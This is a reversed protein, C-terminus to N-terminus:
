KKDKKTKKAADIVAKAAAVDDGADDGFLDLDDDAAEAKAAPAEKAPTAKAAKADDAQKLAKGCPQINGAAKVVEPIARFRDFWDGANKMGKRFGADLVLQFAPTLVSGVVVDALTVSNGVLFQKGNLHGNLVKVSDKLNKILENFRANDLKYSGYVAGSIQEISPQLYEAWTVWQNVQAEQFPSSGLLGSTTNMRALHSAIASTGSIIDGNATELYPFQFTPHRAALDKNQRAQAVTTEVVTLNNNALYGVVQAFFSTKDLVHLKVVERNVQQVGESEGGRGQDNPKMAPFLMVEKINNTDTLLMCIRDIGLGWGGTPPLGYELANVFSMDVHQAELDGAEKAKAQGQFAELQVKPDNLETYANIIEHYNAFLEFRESLGPESRHWKALPSMITPTDIIFCPDKCQSELYEGVLKDILRSTTRPASCDVGKEKCLNDFFIRSEETHLENNPPLKIGLIDELGKMMPIRRFPPTFDIEIVKDPVDQGEPHYQIKYSGHISYVMKALMDETMDMLDHYDAYAWYFECTTFEPNHTLDIGENRFQKGIEFVRNLGGVILKKLYLEPAIRMFLKMDLENHYTEFPRATAGGPIMNMMPTEVEVFDMDNLYKRVFNIIKNRTRFINKVSNNM